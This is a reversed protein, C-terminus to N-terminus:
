GHLRDYAVRTRRTFTQARCETCTRPGPVVFSAAGCFPLPLAPCCRTSLPCLVSSTAALASCTALLWLAHQVADLVPRCGIPAGSCPAPDPRKSSSAPPRRATGAPQESRELRLPRLLSRCHARLRDTRRGGPSPGCPVYMSSTMTPECAQRVEESKGDVVKGRSRQNSALVCCSCLMRQGTCASKASLKVSM